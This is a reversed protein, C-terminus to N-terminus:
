QCVPKTGGKYLYAILYTIDLINITGNGDPDAAQVHDPVPGDKYLYSILFTIDLLNIAGDDNSDGCIYVISVAGSQSVPSYNNIDSYFTPQYDPSYGSIDINIEQGSDAPLYITFYVILVNGSGPDMKESTSPSLLEITMQNASPDSHIVNQESLIESRCGATSFSDYVFDLDSTYELPIKIGNLPLINSAHVPVAVSQGAGTGFSVVILSDALAIIYDQATINRISDGAEVSLTVDYIGGEEYIHAPSQLSSSDNDGFSWSWHDVAMDSEGTFNVELPVQGFHVDGYLMVARDPEINIMMLENMYHCGAVPCYLNDVTYWGNFDGNWGYNVHYQKLEGIIQWGDCVIAHTWIGYLIPRNVNIEDVVIQFWQAQTYDERFIKNIEHYRYYVPFDTLGSDYYAGSGCSGYTTNFAIGVEYSLEAYNHITPEYEYIDWFDASLWEGSSDGVCYDGIWYYSSSGSGFHPWQHYWVIQAMATAVCGVLCYAGADNQPCYLYFPHYQHWSTTLLPGVGKSPSLRGSRLEDVFDASNKLYTDWLDRNVPDFLYPESFQQPVDLRAYMDIYLQTLHNLVDKLLGRMGHVESKELRSTESYYKIPPLEKLSPVVVCGAPSINFIMALLQGDSVIQETSVIEPNIAGAWNGREHVSIKLFNDCVRNMENLSAIETRAVSASFLICATSLAVCLLTKTLFSSKLCICM